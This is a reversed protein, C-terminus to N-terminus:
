GAGRCASRESGVMRFLYIGLSLLIINPIWMAIGIPVIDQEGLASALAIETPGDGAPPLPLVAIALVMAGVFPASRRGLGPRAYM